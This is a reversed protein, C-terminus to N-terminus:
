FINKFIYYFGYFVGKINKINYIVPTKKNKKNM